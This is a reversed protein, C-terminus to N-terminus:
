SMCSLTQHDHISTNREPQRMEGKDTKPGASRGRPRPAEPENDAHGPATSMCASPVADPEHAAPDETAVPEDSRGGRGSLGAEGARGQRPRWWSGIRSTREFSTHSSHRTADRRQKGGRIARQCENDQDEGQGESQLQTIAAAHVHRHTLHPVTQKASHQACAPAGAETGKGKVGNEAGKGREGESIRLPGASVSQRM